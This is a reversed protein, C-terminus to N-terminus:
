RRPSALTTTTRPKWDILWVTETLGGSEPQIKVGYRLLRYVARNAAYLTQTGGLAAAKDVEFLVKDIIKRSYEQESLWADLSEKEVNSNWQRERWNGLYAYGLAEQFFEIVRKQTIEERQGITRM